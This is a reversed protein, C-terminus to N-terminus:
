DSWYLQTRHVLVNGVKAIYTGSKTKEFEDFPIDRKIDSVKNFYRAKRNAAGVTVRTVRLYDKDKKLGLKAAVYYLTSHSINLARCLIENRTNAYNRRLFELDSIKPNWRRSMGLARKKMFVFHNKMGPKLQARSWRICTSQAHTFSSMRYQILQVSATTATLVDFWRLM